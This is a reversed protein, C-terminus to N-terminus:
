PLARVLQAVRRRQKRAAAREGSSCAGANLRKLTSGAPWQPLGMAYAMHRAARQNLM